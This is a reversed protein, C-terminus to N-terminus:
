LRAGGGNADDEFLEDADSLPRLTEDRPLRPAPTYDTLVPEDEHSSVPPHERREIVVGEAAADALAQNYLTEAEQQRQLWRLLALALILGTLGIIRKM